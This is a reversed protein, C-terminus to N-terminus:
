PRPMGYRLRKADLAVEILWLAECVRTLAAGSLDLHEAIILLTLVAADAAILAAREADSIRPTQDRHFPHPEGPDGFNLVVGDANTRIVAGTM